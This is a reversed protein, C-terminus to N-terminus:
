LFKIFFVTFFKIPNSNLDIMGNCCMIAKNSSNLKYCKLKILVVKGNSEALNSSPLILTSTSSPLLNPSVKSVEASFLYKPITKITEKKKIIIRETNSTSVLQILNAM